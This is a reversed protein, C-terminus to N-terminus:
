WLWSRKSRERLMGRAGFRRLEFGNLMLFVAMAAHGLRKSGDIFAHGQVLAFKLAGAEDVVTPYLAEGAAARRADRLDEDSRLQGAAAVARLYVAHAQAQLEEGHKTRAAARSSAFQLGAGLAVGFLSLLATLWENM